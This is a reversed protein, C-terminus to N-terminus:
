PGNDTIGGFTAMTGILATKCQLDAVSAQGDSLGSSVVRETAESPDFSRRPSAGLWLASCIPKRENLFMPPGACVGCTFTM